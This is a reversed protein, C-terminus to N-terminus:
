YSDNLAGGIQNDIYSQIEAIDDGTGANGVCSNIFLRLKEARLKHSETNPHGNTSSIRYKENNATKVEASAFNYNYSEDASTGYITGVTSSSLDLIPLRYKKSLDYLFNAYETNLFADSVILGIKALPCTERIKDMLVKFAGYSTLLTEDGYTGIPYNVGANDNLGVQITILQTNSTINKMGYWWNPNTIYNAVSTDIEGDVIKPMFHAGGLGVQILNAGIENALWTTATLCWEKGNRDTFKENAPDGWTFSDGIACWNIGELLNIPQYVEGNAGKPIGLNLVPNEKDGTITATADSGSELTEVTGITLNPTYGDAGKLVDLQEQTFDSYKFPDGKDGKVTPIKGSIIESGDSMTFVIQNNANVGINTVSVGDKPTPFTMTLVGSDKTNITLTQGSVSMSQVGSVAHEAIKKSLAYSIIDMQQVEQWGDSFLMFVKTSGGNGVTCTSGIPVCQTFHSFNGTGKKTTTSADNM